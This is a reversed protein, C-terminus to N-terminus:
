TPPSATAEGLQGCAAAIDSGRATREIANIGRQRLASLFDQKQQPTPPELSTRDHANLPLINLKVPIEHLLKVLRKADAQSDNLGGLLVYEVTIRRRPKLPYARMAALLDALPWKKNIPMIRDRVEDTTANLSIALQTDLDRGLDHIRPVVGATSITVRRSSFDCGHQDTLLRAARVVQEYNLLPEGMGMFVVNTVRAEPDTAAIDDQVTLVQGLIEAAALNRNRRLSATFCFECGLACGTQSSVCLTNTKATRGVEPIYVAEFATGDDALFRYKRTGDSSVAVADLKPRELSFSQGLRTRLGKSIDTLEGLNKARRAFIGAFIQRGHYRAEGLAECANELEDAGFGLINPLSPQPPAGAKSDLRNLNPDPDPAM